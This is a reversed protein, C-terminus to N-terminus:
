EGRGVTTVDDCSTGTMVTSKVQATDIGLLGNAIDAAQLDYTDQLRLLGMASGYLDDNDPFSRTKTALNAM